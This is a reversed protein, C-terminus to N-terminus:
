GMNARLDPSPIFNRDIVIDAAGLFASEPMDEAGELWSKVQAVRVGLHRAVALESGAIRVAAQLTNRYIEASPM